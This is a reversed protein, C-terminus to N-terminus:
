AAKKQEPEKKPAPKPIPKPAPPKAAPKKPKNDNATDDGFLKITAWRFFGIERKRTLEDMKTIGLRKALFQELHQLKQNTPNRSIMKLATEPDALAAKQLVETGYSKEEYLFAHNLTEHPDDEALRLFLSRQYDPTMSNLTARDTEGALHQMIHLSKPGFIFGAGHRMFEIIQGVTEQNAEPKKRPANPKEEPRHHTHHLDKM